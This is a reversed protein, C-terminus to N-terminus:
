FQGEGEAGVRGEKTMGIANKINLTVAGSM